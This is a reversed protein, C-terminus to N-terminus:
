FLVMSISDVVGWYSHCVVWAAFRRLMTNVRPVHRSRPPWPPPKWVGHKSCICGVAAYICM